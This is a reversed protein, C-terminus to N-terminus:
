SRGGTIGYYNRQIGFTSTEGSENLKEKLKEEKKFVAMVNKNIKRGKLYGCRRYYRKIKEGYKHHGDCFPCIDKNAYQKQSEESCIPSILWHMSHGCDYTM